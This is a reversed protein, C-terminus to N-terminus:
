LLGALAICVSYFVDGVRRASENRKVQDVNVQELIVHDAQALEARAEPMMRRIVAARATPSMKRVSDFFLQIDRIGNQGMGLLVTKFDESELIPKLLGLALRLNAPIALKSELLAVPDKLQDLIGAQAPAESTPVPEGDDAM